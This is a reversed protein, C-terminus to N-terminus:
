DRTFLSGTSTVTVRTALYKKNVERNDFMTLGSGLSDPCKPSNIREEAIHFVESVFAVNWPKFM